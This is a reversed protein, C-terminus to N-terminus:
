STKRGLKNELFTIVDQFKSANDRNLEILNRHAELMTTAVDQKCPEGPAPLPSLPATPPAPAPELHLIRDLGLTALLEANRPNVNVVRPLQGGTQKQIRALGALVGMFTSDMHPCEQLDITFTNVGLDAVTQAYSKVLSANQFSGMGVVKIMSVPGEQSVLITPAVM